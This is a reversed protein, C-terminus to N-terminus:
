KAISHRKLSSVLLVQSRWVGAEERLLRREVVDGGEGGEIAWSLDDLVQVGLAVLDLLLLLLDDIGNLGVTRQKDLDLGSELKNDTASGVEWGNVVVEEGVAGNGKWNYTDLRDNIVTTLVDALRAHRWIWM